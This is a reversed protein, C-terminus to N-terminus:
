RIQRVIVRGGLPIIPCLRAVEAIGDHTAAQVILFGTMQEDIAGAGSASSTGYVREDHAVLQSGGLVETGARLSALWAGFNANAREREEPTANMKARMNEVFVLMFRPGDANRVLPHQVARLTARAAWGGALGFGFMASAAAIMTRRTVGPSASGARALVRDAFGHPVHAPVTAHLMQDTRSFRELEARCAGCAEVHQSVGRRDTVPLEGHLYGVLETDTPHDTM